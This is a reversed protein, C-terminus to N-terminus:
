ESESEAKIMEIPSRSIPEHLKHPEPHEQVWSAVPSRSNRIRKARLRRFTLIEPTNRGTGMGNKYTHQKWGERTGM